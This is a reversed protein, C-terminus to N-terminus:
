LVYKTLAEYLPSKGIEDISDLEIFKESKRLLSIRDLLRAKKLLITFLILIKDVPPM